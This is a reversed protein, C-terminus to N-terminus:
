LEPGRLTNGESFKRCGRGEMLASDRCHRPRRGCSRKLGSIKISRHGASLSLTTNIHTTGLYEVLNPKLLIRKGRIEEPLIGLERFGEQIRAAIDRSYDPVRAIFVEAKIDRGKRRQLFGLGGGLLISGGVAAALFQRRTWMRKKNHVKENTFDMGLFCLIILWLCVCICVSKFITIEIRTFAAKM